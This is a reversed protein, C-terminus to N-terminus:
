RTHSGAVGQKQQRLEEFKEKVRKLDEFRLNSLDLTRVSGPLSLDIEFLRVSVSTIDALAITEPKKTDPLLIRLERDDWELYYKRVSLNGAGMLIFLLDQITFLVSNWDGSPFATNFGNLLAKILLLIGVLTFFSGFIIFFRSFPVSTRFLNIRTM